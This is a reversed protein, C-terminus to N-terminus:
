KEKFIQTIRDVADAADSAYSDAGLETAYDASLPAGGVITNITDSLGREHLIEVVKKMMPTSTTLLASMGIISAKEKVATDVFNEPPVDKGLDIVEVGVGKLMIAVLNKGIDHLDGQVTGIVIKGINPLDDQMLMPKLHDMAASMAKASLLVDPLFIEFDRFKEGVVNMGVILGRNLIDKPPIKEDLAKKTLELIKEDEGNQLYNSIQDLLEM